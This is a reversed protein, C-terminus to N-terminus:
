RIKREFRDKVTATIFTGLGKGALALTKMKAINESGASQNTYRYSSNNTFKINVADKELEYHAVTSKGGANKYRKYHRTKKPTNM